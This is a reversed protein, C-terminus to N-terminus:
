APTNTEVLTTFKNATEITGFRLLILQATKKADEDKCEANFLACSVQAAGTSGARFFVITRRTAGAAIWKHAM